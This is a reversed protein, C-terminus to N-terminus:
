LSISMPLAGNALCTRSATHWCNVRSPLCSIPARRAQKASRRKKKAGAFVVDTSRAERIPLLDSRLWAQVQRARARNERDHPYLREWEPPAFREDLYETIASSESLVFGDIELSPVRQTLRFGPWGASHQAGSALDVTKLTFPLAKEHLAVYASLVYPSFYENDSWLTIAPESM